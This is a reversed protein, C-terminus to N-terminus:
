QTFTKHIYNKLGLTLEFTRKRQLLSSIKKSTM